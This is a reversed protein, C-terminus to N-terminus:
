VGCESVGDSSQAEPGERLVRDVKARIRGVDPIPKFNHDRQPAYYGPTFGVTAIDDFDLKATASVLDPLFSLPINTTTSTKVAEAIANFNRLVTLPDAEAAIARLMCRQREMRAYDSSGKRARVYALSEFGDLHHVGVDVDVTAWPAGEWPPSVEAQLPQEVYVTVGGIAEIVRVFGAMDVLAYYDIQLGMMNELTLELAKMGPDVENPFSRTWSNTRPYLSNLQDPYCECSVFPPPPPQTATTAAEQGEGGGEEGEGPPPPPPPPPALKRELEVFAGSFSRPLPIQALNRPFGFVAAKGTDTDLTVVMMTDTRLGGRGPGADGGAVLITIRDTDVREEFAPFPAFRDARDAMIDPWAAVADPDGFGDVFVRNRQSSPRPAEVGEFFVTVPDPVAEDAVDDLPVVVRPAPAAEDAVFVTELLDITRLTYNAVVVHPAALFAFVVALIMGAVWGPWVGDGAIRYADITAFLRWALLVVNIGMIVWLVRPQVLLEILRDRSGVLALLVALLFLAPVLLIWGRLWRRSYWQGTGPLVASLM